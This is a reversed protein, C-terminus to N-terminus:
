GQIREIAIQCDICRTVAGLKRRQEPIIEGCDECECLSQAQYHTRAKLSATLREEIISNAIDACDVM